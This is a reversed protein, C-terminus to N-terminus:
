LTRSRVSICVRAFGTNDNRDQIEASPASYCFLPAMEKPKRCLDSIRSALVALVSMETDFGTAFRCRSVRNQRNKVGIKALVRTLQSVNENPWGALIRSFLTVWFSVKQDTKLPKSVRSQTPNQCPFPRKPPKVRNTPDPKTLLRQTLRPNPNTPEPKRCFRQKQCRKM